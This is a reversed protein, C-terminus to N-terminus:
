HLLHMMIWVKLFSKSYHIARSQNIAKNTMVWQDERVKNVLASNNVSKSLKIILRRLGNVVAKKHNAIEEKKLLSNDERKIMKIFKEIMMIVREIMMIIKEATKIVKETMIIVKERKPAIIKDITKPVKLNHDTRKTKCFETLWLLNNKTKLM